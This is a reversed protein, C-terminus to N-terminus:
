KNFTTENELQKKYEEDMENFYAEELEKLKKHSINSLLSKYLEDWYILPDSTNNIFEKINYITKDKKM